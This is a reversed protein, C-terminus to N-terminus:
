LQGNELPWGGLYLTSLTQNGSANQWDFSDHVSSSDPLYVDNTQTAITILKTPVNQRSAIDQNSLSNVDRKASSLTSPAQLYFLM